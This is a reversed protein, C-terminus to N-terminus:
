DNHMDIMVTNLNVKYSRCIFYFLLFFIYKWSAYNLLHFESSFSCFIGNFIVLFKHFAYLPHIFICQVSNFILIFNGRISVLTLSFSCFFLPKLRAFIENFWFLTNKYVIISNSKQQNIIKYFANQHHHHHFVLYLLHIVKSQRVLVSRCVLRMSLAWTSKIGRWMEYRKPM